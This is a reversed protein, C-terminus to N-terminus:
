GGILVATRMDDCLSSAVLCACFVRTSYLALPVTCKFAVFTSRRSRHKSTMCSIRGFQPLFCSDLFSHYCLAHRHFSQVRYSLACWASPTQVELATLFSLPPSCHIPWEHLECTPGIWRLGSAQFSHMLSICEFASIM